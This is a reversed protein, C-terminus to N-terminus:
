PQPASLKLVADVIRRASQPTVPAGTVLWRYTAAGMILDILLALDIDARILTTHAASAQTAAV